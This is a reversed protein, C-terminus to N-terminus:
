RCTVVAQREGFRRSARGAKRTCPDRTVVLASPHEAEVLGPNLEAEALPLARFGTLGRAVM